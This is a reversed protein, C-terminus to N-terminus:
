RMVSSLTLKVVSLLTNLVSPRLLLPSLFTLGCSEESLCNSKVVVEDFDIVSGGHNFAESVDGGIVLQM